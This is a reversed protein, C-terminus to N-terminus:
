DVLASVNPPASPRALRRETTAELRCRAVEAAAGITEYLEAAEDYLRAAAHHESRKAYWAAARRANHAGQRVGAERDFWERCPRCRRCPSSDSYVCGITTADIDM